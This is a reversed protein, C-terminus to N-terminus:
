TVSVQLSLLFSHNTHLLYNDLWNAFVHVQIYLLENDRYSKM